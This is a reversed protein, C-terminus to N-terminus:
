KEQNEKGEKGVKRERYIVDNEGKREQSTSQGFQTFFLLSEVSVFNLCLLLLLFFGSGLVLFGLFGELTEQLVVLLHGGGGSVLLPSPIFIQSLFGAPLPM